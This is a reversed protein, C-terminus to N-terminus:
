RGDTSVTKRIFVTVPGSHQLWMDADPAPITRVEVYYELLAKRVGSPKKWDAWDYLFFPSHFDRVLIKFYSQARIREVMANINDYIGVPPQDAVSTARDKLVVSERLYIWNGIDLLVKQPPFGDFEHEIESIYRYVDAWGQRGRWYRAENKVGSPVVHLTVFLTLVGAMA